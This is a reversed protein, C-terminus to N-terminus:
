SPLLIRREGVCLYYSDSMKDFEIYKALQYYAQRSLKAELDERILCYPVNESNFTITEPRLPETAGDSLLLQFNGGSAEQVRVVVFPVDEVVVPAEDRGIRLFYSGDAARRLNQSFLQLIDKRVIEIGGHFWNGESDIRLEYPGGASEISHLRGIHGGVDHQRSLQHKRGTM